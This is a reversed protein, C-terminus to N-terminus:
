HIGEHKCNKGVVPSWHANHIESHKRQGVEFTSSTESIGQCFIRWLEEGGGEVFIASFQKSTTLDLMLEGRRKAIPPIQVPRCSVAWLM